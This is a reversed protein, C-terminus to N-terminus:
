RIVEGHSVRSRDPSPFGAGNMRRIMQDIMLQGYTAEYGPHQSLDDPCDWSLPDLIRNIREMVKIFRKAEAEGVNEGTLGALSLTQMRELVQPQLRFKRMSRSGAVSALRSAATAYHMALELDQNGAARDALAALEPGTRNWIDDFDAMTIPPYSDEDSDEDSDTDTNPTDAEGAEDEVKAEAQLQVQLCKM